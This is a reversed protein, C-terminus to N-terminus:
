GRSYVGSGNACPDDTDCQSTVAVGLRRISGNMLGSSLLRTRLGSSRVRLRNVSRPQHHGVRRLGRPRRRVGNLEAAERGGRHLSGRAARRPRAAAPDPRGAAQADGLNDVLNTNNPNVQAPPPANPPGPTFSDAEILLKEKPLYVMLFTDSHHSDAVHYIEVTRTGDSLVMKEGVTVFQAGEEGVEALHDPAITSPTAFAREFYAKNQAQTVITAGEGVAARVGGSHDFHAHSNVVYRIPKGPALKKVQELM